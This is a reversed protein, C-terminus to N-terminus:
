QLSRFCLLPMFRIKYKFEGLGSYTHPLCIGRTTSPGGCPPQSLFLLHSLLSNDLHTVVTAQVQAPAHPPFSLATGVAVCSTSDKPCLLTSHPPSFSPCTSPPALTTVLPVSPSCCIQLTQSWSSLKCARMTIPRQTETHVTGEGPFTRGSRTHHPMKKNIM